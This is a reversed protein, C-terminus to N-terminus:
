WITKVVGSRGIRDDATVLPVREVIATAAILRDFPDAPFSPPLYAAVAAVDTTIEKVMVGSRGVLQRLWEAPTGPIRIEGAAAMQAVEMLTVSAVALGSTSRSEREIASRAKRSLRGPRVALWIVVHTDLLIM